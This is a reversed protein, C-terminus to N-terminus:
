SIFCSLQCIIWNCKFQMLFITPSTFGPHDQHRLRQHVVDQPEQPSCVEDGDVLGEVPQREPEARAPEFLRRHESFRLHWFDQSTFNCSYSEALRLDLSLLRLYHGWEPSVLCFNTVVVTGTLTVTFYSCASCDLASVLCRIGTTTWRASTWNSWNLFPKRSSPSQLSGACNISVSSSITVAM